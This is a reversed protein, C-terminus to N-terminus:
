ATAAAKQEELAKIINQYTNILSQMSEGISDFDAQDLIYGATARIGPGTNNVREGVMAIGQWHDGKRWDVENLALVLDEKWTAEHDKVLAAAVEMIARWGLGFGSVYKKRLDGATRKGSMVEDWAPLADIVIEWVEALPETLKGVAPDSPRRSKLNRVDNLELLNAQICANVLVRNSDVLTAMTIVDPSKEALSNTKENVRGKFLPIDEMIRKSMVVIPDRQEFALGATKSVPKANLNLDSFLQRIAETGYYPILNVGIEENALCSDKILAGRIAAVRHQGDAPFLMISDKLELVGIKEFGEVPTFKFDRKPVIVSGDRPILILTLNSFFSDDNETLYPVMEGEVRVKNLKRQADESGEFIQDWRPDDPLRVLNDIMGFSMSTEFYELRKQKAKVCEFNVSM